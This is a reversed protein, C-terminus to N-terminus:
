GNKSAANHSNLPIQYQFLIGSDAPNRVIIMIETPEQKEVMIDHQDASFPLWVTNRLITVPILQTRTYDETAIYFALIVVEAVMQAFNAATPM